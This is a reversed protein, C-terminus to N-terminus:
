NGYCISLVEAAHQPELFHNVFQFNNEQKEYLLEKRPYNSNIWFENSCLRQMKFFGQDVLLERCKKDKEENTGDLEICVIYVPIDWNMSKLVEYEGGEVDLFFMDLYNVQVKNLISSLPETPVTYQHSNKHNASRMHNSITKSIGATPQDGLYEATGEEQAVAANVCFDKPRNQTLRTYTSQIPEILVGNFSLTDQFFKTNSYVLGDWAGLELYTGDERKQNILNRYIFLDEGLQSYFNLLTLGGFNM